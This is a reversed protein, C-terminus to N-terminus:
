GLKALKTPISFENHHKKNINRTCIIEPTKNPVLVNNLTILQTDHDSLGNICSKM